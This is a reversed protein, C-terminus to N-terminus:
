KELDNSQNSRVFTTSGIKIVKNWGDVQVLKSEMSVEVLSYFTDDPLEIVNEKPADNSQNSRELIAIAAKLSADNPYGELMMKLAAITPSLNVKSEPAVDLVRMNHMAIETFSAEELAKMILPDQKNELQRVRAELELIAKLYFGQPIKEAAKMMGNAETMDVVSKLAEKLQELASRAKAGDRKNDTM